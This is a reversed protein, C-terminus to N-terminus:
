VLGRDSQSGPKENMAWLRKLSGASAEPWSKVPMCHGPTARHM